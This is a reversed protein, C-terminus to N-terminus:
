THTMPKYDFSAVLNNNSNSVQGVVLGINTVAGLFNSVPESAEQIFTGDIGSGSWRFLLNGSNLEIEFYIPIGSAMGNGGAIQTLYNSWSVITSTFTNVNTFRDVAMLPNYRYQIDIFSGNGSNYVALGFFPYPNTNSMVYDSVKCRYRWAAGSVIPQVALIINANGSNVGTVTFALSGDVVPFSAGTSNVTTWATAGSYRAGATDLVTGYEFEDNPGLGVGTPTTAHTDATVDFASSGASGQPGPIIPPDEFEDGIVFVTKGNLGTAGNAGPAGQIGPIIVPDDYEDPALVVTLGNSGAAGATGTPGRPGPVVNGGDGDGDDSLIYPIPATLNLPVNGTLPGGGSLGPGPVLDGVSADGSTITNPTNNVTQFYSALLTALQGLTLTQGGYGALTTGEDGAELVTITKRVGGIVPVQIKKTM